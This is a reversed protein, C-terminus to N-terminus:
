IVATVRIDEGTPSTILLKGGHRQCIALAISLGLGSGPTGASTSGRYFRDTFHSLEEKTVNRASNTVCIHLKRQKGELVMQISGGPACYRFANDLLITMLQRLAEEDGTCSRGEQISLRFPINRSEALNRYSAAVDEAVDSIPFEIFSGQNISEDCRSLYVLNQTMDTLRRTQSQIDEIWENGELEMELLQADASIVALPTKLEHSAATIFAKQKENAEVLPAVVQGSVLTLMVGALVTGGLAVLILMERTDRFMELPLKRSLFLIHIGETDRTVRYRWGELFGSNKGDTMVQKAYSGATKERFLSTHSLDASFGGGGSSLLVTFYRADGIESSDPTNLITDMLHDARNCISGYSRLLSISVVLALLIAAALTSLLVFRIQLTRKMSRKQEKKM